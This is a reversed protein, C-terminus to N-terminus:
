SNERRNLRRVDKDIPPRNSKSESTTSCYPIFKDVAAMLKDHIVTFQADVDNQLPDLLTDWDIALENRLGQYDELRWEFDGLLV